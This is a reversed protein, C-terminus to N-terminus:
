KPYINELVVNVLDSLENPTLKEILKQIVHNGNQDEICKRYFNNLEVVIQSIFENPVVDILIQIVRCGYM